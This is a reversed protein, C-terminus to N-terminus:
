KKMGIASKYGDTRIIYDVNNHLHYDFSGIGTMLNFESGDTMVVVTGTENLAISAIESVKLLVPNDNTDVVGIFQENKNVAM